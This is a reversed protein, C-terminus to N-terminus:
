VPQDASTPDDGCPENTIAGTNPDHMCVPETAIPSVETDHLRGFALDGIINGQADTVVKGVQVLATASTVGPNVTVTCSQQPYDKKTQGLQGPTPSLFDDGGAPSLVRRTAPDPQGNAGPCEFAVVVGTNDCVTNQGVPQVNEVHISYNVVQGSVIQNASKTVSTALGSGLCDAPSIHASAVGGALLVAGLVGLALGALRSPWSSRYEDTM